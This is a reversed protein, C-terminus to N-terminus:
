AGRLPLPMKKADVGDMDLAPSVDARAGSYQRRDSRHRPAQDCTRTTYRVRPKLTVYHVSPKLTVYHERPKLTVYHERPKLTVYHERPKLTVYHEHHGPVQKCAAAWDQLRALCTVDASRVQRAANWMM